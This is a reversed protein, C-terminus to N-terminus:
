EIIVTDSFTISPKSKRKFTVTATYKGPKLGYSGVQRGTYIYSPKIRTEKQVITKKRFVQGNPDIIEIMIEDGAKAHHYGTWYILAKSTTSLKESKKVDLINKFDPVGGYFGGRIISFEKYHINENWLNKNEGVCGSKSTKNSFPDVYGSEWIVSFQLSPYEAIGSQGIQAIIDGQKIKDGNKVNVSGLRLHCYFTSLGPGHTIMIGNGCERSVSRIEDLQESTKVSDSEGDRVRSVTGDAAALVNVGAKMDPRNFLAITTGTNGNYTNGGCTFDQAKESPDVDVYHAITCSEGLACSAPFILEPIAEAHASAAIIVFLLLTLFTQTTKYSIM